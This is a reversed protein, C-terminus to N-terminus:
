TTIGGISQATGGFTASEHKQTSEVLLSMQLTVINYIDLSPAASQNYYKPPRVVQSVGCVASKLTKSNYKM